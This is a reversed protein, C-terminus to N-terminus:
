IFYQLALTIRSEVDKPADRPINQVASQAEVVSYGLATLAAIVDSDTDSLGALEAMVGSVKLKGKLEFIIKEATKKGIGPVRTLLAADERGVANRLQEASLTGLIALAMKPGVGSVSILVEFIAREEESTFGYLSIDDERVTLHTYLTLTDGVNPMSDLATKPVRVYLGAGGVMLVIATENPKSVIKAVPGLLREIM